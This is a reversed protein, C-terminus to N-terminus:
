LHYNLDVLGPISERLFSDASRRRDLKLSLMLRRLTTEASMVPIPKSSICGHSVLSRLESMDQHVCHPVSPITATGQRSFQQFRQKHGAKPFQFSFAFVHGLPV